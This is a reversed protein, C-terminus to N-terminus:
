KYLGPELKGLKKAIDKKVEDKGTYSLTRVMLNGYMDMTVPNISAFCNTVANYENWKGMNEWAPQYCIDRFLKRRPFGAVAARKLFLGPKTMVWSESGYISSQNFIKGLSIMLSDGNMRTTDRYDISYRYYTAGGYCSGIVVKTEYDSYAALKRFSLAIVSDKLTYYSIEDKGIFFLSYGKKYMGHSDFWLTGIRTNYKKLKRQVKANAHKTDRAIIAVFKKKRFLGKLKGRLINFRSALDIKGKKPKSIIFFNMKRKETFPTLEKEAGAGPVNDQGQCFSINWVSLCCLLLTTTKAIRMTKIKLRATLGYCFDIPKLAIGLQFYRRSLLTKTIKRKSLSYFAVSFLIATTIHQICGPQQLFGYVIYM